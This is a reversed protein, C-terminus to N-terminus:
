GIKTWERTKLNLMFSDHNDVYDEKGDNHIIIKGGTITIQSQGDFRAEHRSVWGPNEGKTEVTEIKLTHIDLRFVPTFGVKRDEQYGLSGIIYIYNDVLTATHFDTPPFVDRPYTYIACEGNGKHVFVDNYICFDPDYYDEHEGAIEIFWGNELATISMGFRDYSWIPERGFVEEGGFHEAGRYASAGCKVMALWFPNHSLEPNKTGFRRHKYVNYEHSTVDPVGEVSYGLMTARAEKEMKNLDAGAQVLLWVIELNHAVAIAQESIYNEAFINAGKEILLKMCEVAGSESAAILVTDGFQDVQEIDFGQELLWALMQADDKQVAYHLSPKACNGVASINAGARMLLDTKQIDGVVISFLFPTRGWHDRVELDAGQTIVDEMEELTGYAIAFFLPMWRLAKADVGQALLYQVVDFRGRGSAVRVADEAYKSYRNVNEGQAVKTKVFSLLDKGNEYIINLLSEEM